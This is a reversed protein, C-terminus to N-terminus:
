AEDGQTAAMATRALAIALAQTFPKLAGVPATDTSAALAELRAAAAPRGHWRWTAAARRAADALKARLPADLLGAAVDDVVTDLSPPAEGDAAASAYRQVAGELAKPEILSVPALWGDASAGDDTERAPVTAQAAALDMSKADALVPTAVHELFHTWAHDRVLTPNAMAMALGAAFPLEALDSRREATKWTERLQGRTLHAHRAERLDGTGGLIVGLACTGEGDTCTLLLEVDGDMDPLSLFARSPVDVTERGLSFVVPRAEPVPVMVGRSRAKHLALAAAKRLDKPAAVAQLAALNGILGAAEIAALPDPLSALAGAGEHAWAVSAPDATRQVIATVLDKNM